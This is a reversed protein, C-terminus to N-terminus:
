KWLLWGCWGQPDLLRQMYSTQKICKAKIESAGLFNKGFAQRLRQAEPSGRYAM